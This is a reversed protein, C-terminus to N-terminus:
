FIDVLKGFSGNSKIHRVCGIEIAWHFHGIIFCLSASLSPSSNTYLCLRSFHAIFLSTWTPNLFPDEKGVAHSILKIVCFYRKKYAEKTDWIPLFDAQLKPSGPEIGPNCLDEPSPFPLGSWYEQRSFEMSQPALYAVTWPAAFPWAHSLWYYM